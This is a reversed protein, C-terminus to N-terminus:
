GIIIVPSTIEKGEIVESTYGIKSVVSEVDRDSLSTLEGEKDEVGAIVINGYVNQNQDRRNLISVLSENVGYGDDECIINYNKRGIKRKVIDIYRCCMAAAFAQPTDEVEKVEFGINKMAMEIEDVNYRKAQFVMVKLKRIM